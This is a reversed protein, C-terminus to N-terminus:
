SPGFVVSLSHNVDFIAKSLDVRGLELSVQLLLLRLAVLQITLEVGDSTFDLLKLYINLRSGACLGCIFFIVLFSDYLQLVLGLLLEDPESGQEVALTHQVRLKQSICTDQHVHVVLKDSILFSLEAKEFFDVDASKLDKLLSLDSLIKLNIKVLELFLILTQLM